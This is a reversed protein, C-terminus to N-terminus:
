SHVNRLQLWSQRASFEPGRADKEADERTAFWYQKRIGAKNYGVVRFAKGAFPTKSTQVVYNTLRPKSMVPLILGRHLTM